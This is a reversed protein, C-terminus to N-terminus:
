LGQGAVPGGGPLGARARRRGPLACPDCRRRLLGGGLSPVHKPGTFPM